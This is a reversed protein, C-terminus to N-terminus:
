LEVQEFCYQDSDYDIRYMTQSQPNEEFMDGYQDIFQDDIRYLYLYDCGADKLATLWEEQTCDITAGDPTDYPKGISSGIPTVAQVPTLEYKTVWYFFGSDNQVIVAVIDKKYDLIDKYQSVNIYSRGDVCSIDDKILKPIFSLPLFVLISIFVVTNIFRSDIEKNEKTGSNESISNDKEILSAFIVCIGFVILGVYYSSM